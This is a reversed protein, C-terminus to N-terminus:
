EGASGCGAPLLLQWKDRLRQAGAAVEIKRRDVLANGTVFDVSCAHHNSPAVTDRATFEYRTVFLESDQYVLTVAQRWRDRGIADNQSIVTLADLSQSELQPFTGWMVGSWALTRDVITREDTSTIVRLEAVDDVPTPSLLLARDPKGDGDLDLTAVDLVRKLDEGSNSAEPQSPEAKASPEAGVSGAPAVQTAVAAGTAPTQALATEPCANPRECALSLFVPM